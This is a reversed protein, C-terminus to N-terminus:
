LHYHYVFVVSVFCHLLCVQKFIIMSSVLPNDMELITEFTHSQFEGDTLSLQTVLKKEKKAALRFDAFISRMVIVCLM